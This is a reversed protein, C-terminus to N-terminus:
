APNASERPLRPLDSEIQDAMSRLIAPLDFLIDDSAHCSFGSRGAEGFVMVIAGPAGSKERVYTCLDDYRGPGIM